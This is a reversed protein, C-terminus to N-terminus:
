NKKSNFEAYRLTPLVPTPITSEALYAQFGFSAGEDDDDEEEEQGIEYIFTPELLYASTLSPADDIAGVDEILSKFYSCSIAYSTSIVELTPTYTFIASETTTSTYITTTASAPTAATDLSDQTAYKCQTIEVLLAPLTKTTTFVVSATSKVTVTVPDISSTSTDTTSSSTAYTTATSTTTVTSAISAIVDRYDSTTVTSAVTSTFTVTTTTSAVASTSSAISTSTTTITTTTLLQSISISTSTSTFTISTTTSSTLYQTAISCQPTTLVTYTFLPLGKGIVVRQLQKLGSKDNTAVSANSEESTVESNETDCNIYKMTTGQCTSGDQNPYACVGFCRWFITGFPCTHRSIILDTGSYKCNYYNTKDSTDEFKGEKTCTAECSQALPNFTVKVEDSSEPCTKLVPTNNPGCFVYMSANNAFPIRQGEKGSCATDDSYTQCNAQPKCSNSTPDFTTGSTCSYKFLYNSKCYHFRTCDLLDPTFTDKCSIPSHLDSHRRCSTNSSTCGLNTPNCYPTPEYCQTIKVVNESRCTIIANCDPTCIENDEIGRCLESNRDLRQLLRAGRLRPPTEEGNVFICLQFLIQYSFHLVTKYLLQSDFLYLALIKFAYSELIYLKLYIKFSKLLAIQQQSKKKRKKTM